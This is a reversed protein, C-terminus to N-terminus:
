VSTVTQWAAGSYVCLKALTTDFVMLGAAPSAITNKEATTMNPLRVGQTTSQADLIASASPSSTGIGVNGSSDIRLREAQNTYFSIGGFGSIITQSTSTIYGMGYNPIANLGSPTFTSGDTSVAFGTTARGQGTVDLKYAPSSTGIGVNGSANIVFPTADPNASDEVLLANGSGIQTIRVADSVSNADVTLAAAAVTRAATLNAVSVQVTAGSQVIPLVETGALPTSAVSLQSIKKDAM